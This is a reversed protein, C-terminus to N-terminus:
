RWNELTELHNVSVYDHSIAEEILASYNSLVQLSVEAEKFNQKAVDFGYTFIAAMGLVEFGSNRLDAVAKLASGGTSILDEIFM